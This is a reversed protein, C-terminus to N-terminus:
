IFLQMAFHCSCLSCTITSRDSRLM